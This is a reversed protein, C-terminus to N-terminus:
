PIATGPQPQHQAPNRDRHSVKGAWHPRAPPAAGARWAEERAFARAAALGAADATVEDGVVRSNDKVRVTVREQGAAHDAAFDRFM